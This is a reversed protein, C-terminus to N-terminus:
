GTPEHEHTIVVDGKKEEEEIEKMSNQQDKKGTELRLM